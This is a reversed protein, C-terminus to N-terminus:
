GHHAESKSAAILANRMATRMEDKTSPMYHRLSSGAARMVRELQEDIFEQSFAPGGDDTKSILVCRRGSKCDFLPSEAVYQRAPARSSRAEVHNRYPAM